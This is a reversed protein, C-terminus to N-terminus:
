KKRPASPPAHQLQVSNFSPRKKSKHYPDVIDGEVFSADKSVDLQSTDALMSSDHNILRIKTKIVRAKKDDSAPFVLNVFSGEADLVAHFKEAMGSQSKDPSASVDLPNTRDLRELMTKLMAEETLM